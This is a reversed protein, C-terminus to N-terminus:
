GKFLITVKTGVGLKSKVEINDEHGEIIQKSIAM